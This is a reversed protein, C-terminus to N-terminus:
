RLRVLRGRERPGGVEIDAIVEATNEGGVAREQGTGEPAGGAPVSVSRGPGDMCIGTSSIMSFAAGASTNPWM